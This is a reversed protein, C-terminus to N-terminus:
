PSQQQRQPATRSIKQDASFPPEDSVDHQGPRDDAVSRSFRVVLDAGDPEDAIKLEPLESGLAAVIADGLERDDSADGYLSRAGRLDERSGKVTPAVQGFATAALAAVLAIATLLGPRPMVLSFTDRGPRKGGQEIPSPDTYHGIRKSAM